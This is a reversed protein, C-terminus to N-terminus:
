TRPVRHIARRRSRVWLATGLLIASALGSATRVHNMQKWSPSYDAWARVPDAKPKHSALANNLPVHHGITLATVGMLFLGGGALLLRGEASGRQALGRVTLVTTAATTGFLVAMFPPKTASRNIAQMAAVAQAAPLRDLAPMVFTSFALFVGGNAAAGLAGVSVLAIKGQVRREAM